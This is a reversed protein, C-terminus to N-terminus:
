AGEGMSQIEHLYKDIRKTLLDYLSEDIKGKKLREVLLEHLRYLEAECRKSKWKYESFTADIEEMYKSIARKKKHTAFSYGFIGALGALITVIAAIMNWPTQAAASATNKQDQVGKAAEAQLLKLRSPAIYDVTNSQAFVLSTSSFLAAFIVIGALFRKM